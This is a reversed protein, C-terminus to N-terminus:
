EQDTNVVLSCLLVTILMKRTRDIRLHVVDRADTEFEMWAGRKPIVTAELGRKGNKDVKNNFCGSPARGLESVIVREAGKIICSGIVTMLPLDGIIVEQEEVGGHENSILRVQG